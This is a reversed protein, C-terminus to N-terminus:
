NTARAAAGQTGTTGAFLNDVGRQTPVNSALVEKARQYAREGAETLVLGTGARVVLASGLAKELSRLQGSVSPQSVRLQEAARTVGGADVVLCFVSLRRLTVGDDM